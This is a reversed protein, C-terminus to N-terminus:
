NCGCPTCVSKKKKKKPELSIALSSLNGQLVGMWFCNSLSSVDTANGGNMHRRSFPLPFSFLMSLFPTMTGLPAGGLYEHDRRRVVPYWLFKM